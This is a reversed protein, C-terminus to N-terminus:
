WSIIRSARQWKRRSGLTKSYDLLNHGFNSWITLFISPWTSYVYFQLLSLKCTAPPSVISCLFFPYLYYKSAVFFDEASRFHLLWRLLWPCLSSHIQPFPCLLPLWNLLNCAYRIVKVLIFPNLFLSANYRWSNEPLLLILNNSESFVFRFSVGQIAGSGQDM